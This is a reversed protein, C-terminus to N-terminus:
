GKNAGRTDGHFSALIRTHRSCEQPGDADTNGRRRDRKESGPRSVRLSRAPLSLDGGAGRSGLLDLVAQVHDLAFAPVDGREYRVFTEDQDVVHVIAVVGGDHALHFHEAILRDPIHEVRVLM